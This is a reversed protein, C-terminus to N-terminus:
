RVANEAGSGGAFDGGGSAVRAPDAFEATKVIVRVGGRGRGRGAHVRLSPTGQPSARDWPSPGRRMHDQQERQRRVHGPRGRDIDGWFFAAAM